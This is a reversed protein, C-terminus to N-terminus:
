SVNIPSSLDYYVLRPALLSLVPTDLPVEFPLDAVGLRKLLAIVQTAEDEHVVTTDSLDRLKFLKLAEFRQCLHHLDPLGFIRHLAEITLRENEM